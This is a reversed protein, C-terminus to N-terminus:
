EWDGDEDEETLYQEVNRYGTAAFLVDNLTGESYGNICTILKLTEESVINADILFDWLKNEKEFM